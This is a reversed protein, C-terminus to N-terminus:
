LMMEKQNFYNILQNYLYRNYLINSIISAKKVVYHLGKHSSRKKANKTGEIKVRFELQNKM